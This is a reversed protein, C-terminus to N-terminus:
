PRSVWPNGPIWFRRPLLAAPGAYDVHVRPGVAAKIAPYGDDALYLRSGCLDEGWLSRDIALAACLKGPGNCLTVGRAGGRRAEMVARGLVPEGARILVMEPVGSPGAVVNMCCHMGYILYVYAFGGPGYAVSTRGEPKGRFVHSAPDDSGTYAETEVIRLACLGEPAQHVLLKGLLRPALEMAGAQYFARGLAAPAGSM